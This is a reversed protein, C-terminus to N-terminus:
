GARESVSQHPRVSHPERGVRMMRRAMVLICAFWIVVLVRQLLGAWQHLPTGAQIAFGGLVVFMMLMIIGTGLVYAALDRWERDATLRRSLAILGISAGLFTLIAAAAHAPTETPVGDVRVWPFVGALVIGVSSAVLLAIALRGFRTPRIAAHLGLVFAAMLTGAIAFNVKQLWGGPWATLASVPMAVHSYDPHMLGQAFVLAIFALPGIMGTLALLTMPLRTQM